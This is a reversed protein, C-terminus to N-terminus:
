KRILQKSYRGNGIPIVKVDYYNAIHYVDEGLFENKYKPQLCKWVKDQIDYDDLGITEFVFDLTIKDNTIPNVTGVVTLDVNLATLFYLIILSKKDLEPTFLRNEYYKTCYYQEQRGLSTSLLPTVHNGVQLSDYDIFSMNGNKDVFINDCTYLDPFVIGVENGRKVISELKMHNDAYMKLNCRDEVSLNDDYENYDIGEARKSIYGCFNGNSYVASEPVIIEPINSFPKAELIKREMKIKCSDYIFLAFPTFVKLIKGDSLEYVTSTEGSHIQKRLDLEKINFKEM